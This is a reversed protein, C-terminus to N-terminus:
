DELPTDQTYEAWDTYSDRNRLDHLSHCWVGTNTAGWHDDDLKLTANYNFRYVNPLKVSLMSTFNHYKELDMGQVVRIYKIDYDLTCNYGKDLFYKIMTRWHKTDEESMPVFSQTTGFYLHSLSLDKLKKEIRRVDLVGKVFLTATGFNPTKEVETGVFMDTERRDKIDIGM